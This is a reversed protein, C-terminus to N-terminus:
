TRDRVLNLDIAIDIKGRFKKIEQLRNKRILEELATIIVGTKTSQHSVKMATKVLAEPIDITTRL